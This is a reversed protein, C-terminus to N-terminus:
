LPFYNKRWNEKIQKREAEAKRGECFFLVYVLFASQLSLYNLNEKIIEKFSM